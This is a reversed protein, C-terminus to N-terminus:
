SLRSAKAGVASRTISLARAGILGAQPRRRPLEYLDSALSNVWTRPIRIRPLEYGLDHM